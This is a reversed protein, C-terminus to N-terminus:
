ILKDDVTYHKNEVTVQKAADALVLPEAVNTSTEANIIQDIDNNVDALKDSQMEPGVNQSQVEPNNSSSNVKTDLLENNKVLDAQTKLIKYKIILYILFLLFIFVLIHRASLAEEESALPSPGLSALLLAFIVIGGFYIVFIKFATKCFEVLFKKFTTKDKFPLNEIM